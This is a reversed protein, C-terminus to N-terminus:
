RKIHMITIIKMHEAFLYIFLTIHTYMCVYLIRKIDRRVYPLTGSLYRSLFGAAVVYALRELYCLTIEWCTM